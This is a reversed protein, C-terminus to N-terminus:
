IAEEYQAQIQTKCSKWVKFGVNFRLDTALLQCAAERGYQAGASFGRNGGFGSFCVAIAHWPTLMKSM